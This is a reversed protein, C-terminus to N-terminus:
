KVPTFQTLFAILYFGCFFAGVLRYASIGSRHEAVDTIFTPEYPDIMLEASNGVVPASGSSFVGETSQYTEGRFTYEFTPCYVTIMGGKQRRRKQKDVKVIVGQVAQSCRRLRRRFAITPVTLMLIGPIYFVIMFLNPAILVPDFLQAKPDFIRLLAVATMYLASIGALIFVSRLKHKDSAAAFFAALPVIQILELVIAWPEGCCMLVITLIMTLATWGSFLFLPARPLAGLARGGPLRSEARREDAIFSDGNDRIGGGYRAESYPRSPPTDDYRFGNEENRDYSGPASQEYPQYPPIASMDANDANGFDNILYDRQYGDTEGYGSRYSDNGSPFAGIPSENDRRSSRRSGGNLYWPTNSGNNTNM